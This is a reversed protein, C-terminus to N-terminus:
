KDGYQDLLDSVKNKVDEDRSQSLKKDDVAGDLNSETKKTTTDRKARFVIVVLAFLGFVLPGFWLLYTEKRVPPKYTVFEGFREVMYGVIDDQTKGEEVLRHVQFRMDKAIPANSDAIDQNQCKPCRLQKTLAQYTELNQDSSFDYIDVDASTAAVVLLLVIAVSWRKVESNM